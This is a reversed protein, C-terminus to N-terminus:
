QYSGDAQQTFTWSQNAGGNPAWTILQTGATTSHNPDDLAKGSAVVTHSGNLTSATGTATFTLTQEAATRGGEREGAQSKGRAPGRVAASKCYTRYLSREEALENEEDERVCAARSSVAAQYLYDRAIRSGNSGQTHHLYCPLQRPGPQMFPTPDALLQVLLSISTRHPPAGGNGALTTMLCAGGPRSNTSEGQVTRSRSSCSAHIATYMPTSKCTRVWVTQQIFVASPSIWWCVSSWLRSSTRANYACNVAGATTPM